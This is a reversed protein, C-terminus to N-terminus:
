CEGLGAYGAEEPSTYGAEAAAGSPSKVSSGGAIGEAAARGAGWGGQTIDGSAISSGGTSASSLSARPVGAATGAPYARNATNTDPV